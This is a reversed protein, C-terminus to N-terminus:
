NQVIGKTYPAFFYQGDCWLAEPRERIHFWSDFRQTCESREASGPINVWSLFWEISTAFEHSYHESPHLLLDLATSWACRTSKATGNALSSLQDTPIQDRIQVSRIRAAELVADVIITTVRSILGTQVNTDRWSAETCSVTCICGVHETNSTKSLFIFVSVSMKSFFIACQEQGLLLYTTERLELVSLWVSNGPM